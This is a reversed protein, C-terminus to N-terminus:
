WVTLAVATHKVSHQLRDAVAHCCWAWGRKLFYKATVRNYIEIMELLEDYVLYHANGM